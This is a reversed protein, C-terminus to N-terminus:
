SGVESLSGETNVPGVPLYNDQMGIAFQPGMRDPDALMQNYDAQSIQGSYPLGASRAMAQVEYRGAAAAYARSRASYLTHLSGQTSDAQRAMQSALSRCADAAAGYISTRQGSLWTLEEDQMQPDKSLTDGILLRLQFLPTSALATPDYTWTM